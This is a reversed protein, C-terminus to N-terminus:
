LAILNVGRDDFLRRAARRTGFGAMAVTVLAAGALIWIRFWRAFLLAAALVPNRDSANLVEFAPGLNSRFGFEAAVRDFGPVYAPFKSPALRSPFFIVPPVVLIAALALRERRGPARALLYVFTAPILPMMTTRTFFLLSVLAMAAVRRYPWGTCLEFYLAVL